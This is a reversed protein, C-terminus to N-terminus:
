VNWDKMAKDIPENFKKACGYRYHVTVAGTMKQPYVLDGRKFREGCSCCAAAHRHQIWKVPQVQKM